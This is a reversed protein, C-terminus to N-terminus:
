DFTAQYQHSGDPSPGLPVLSIIQDGLVHHHLLHMQQPLYEPGPGQFRLDFPESRGGSFGSRRLADARTLTLPYAGGERLPVMFVTGVHPAFDSLELFTESM